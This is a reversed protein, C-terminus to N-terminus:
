HKQAQALIHGELENVSSQLIDLADILLPTMVQGKAKLRDALQDKWFHMRAVELVAPL